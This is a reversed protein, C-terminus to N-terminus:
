PTMQTDNPPGKPSMNTDNETHLLQKVKQPTGHPVRDSGISKESFARAGFLDKFISKGFPAWIARPLM